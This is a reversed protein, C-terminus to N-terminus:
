LVRIGRSEYSNIPTQINKRIGYAMILAILGDIKDRSKKIWSLTEQLTQKLLQM